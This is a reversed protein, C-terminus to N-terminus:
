KKMGLLADIARKLVAIEKMNMESMDELDKIQDKMSNIQHEREWVSLNLMNSENELKKIVFDIIDNNYVTM